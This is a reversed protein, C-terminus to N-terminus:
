AGNLAFLGLVLRNAFLLSTICDEPRPLQDSTMNAELNPLNRRAVANGQASAITLWKCAQVYDRGVGDGNAYAVGLDLQAEAYNEEAAKRYWQAAEVYDQAVGIAKRYCEALNYQAVTENQEVAKGFGKMAEEQNQAVGIVDAYWFGLDCQTQANGQEAKLKTDTLFRPDGQSQQATLRMAFAVVVLSACVIERSKM